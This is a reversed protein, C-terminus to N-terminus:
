GAKVFRRGIFILLRKLRILPASLRPLGVLVREINSCTMMMGVQGSKAVALAGVPLNNFSENLIRASYALYASPVLFVINKKRLTPAVYNYRALKRVFDLYTKQDPGFKFVIWKSDVTSLKTIVRNFNVLMLGEANSGDEQRSDELHFTETSVDVGGVQASDLNYREDVVVVPTTKKVQLKICTLQKVLQESTDNFGNSAIYIIM